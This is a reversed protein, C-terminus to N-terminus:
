YLAAFSFEFTLFVCRKFPFWGQPTVKIIVVVVMIVKVVVVVMIVKDMIFIITIVM